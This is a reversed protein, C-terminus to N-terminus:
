PCSEKSNPVLLTEGIELFSERGNIAPNAKTILSWSSGDGYFRSAILSLSDGRRITYYFGGCSGKKTEQSQTPTSTTTQVPTPNSPSTSTQAIPQQQRSSLYNSSYGLSIGVVLLLIGIVILLWPTVARGGPKSTSVPKAVVPLEAIMRFLSLNTECNPCIDGEIEPRDCVPCTLKTKM